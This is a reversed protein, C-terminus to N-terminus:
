MLSSNKLNERMLLDQVHNIIDSTTVQNICSTIHTFVPRDNNSYQRRIAEFKSRFYKEATEYDNTRNGFSVVFRSVQVGDELKKRLLDSKNLFLVLPVNELLKNTCLEKWIILSDELCNVKRDEPLAQDFPSLPALFIICDVNDFYPIWAHRQTRAGGVDYLRWEVGSKDVPFIHESVGITKIRARLIDDDTPMYRPATIRDLDNLFFGSGEELRVRFKALRSRVWPDKWLGILEQGCMHFFRGPDNKDDWDPTIALSGANHDSDMSARGGEVSRRGNNGNGPSSRGNSSSGSTVKVQVARRIKNIFAGNKSGGNKSNWTNDPRVFFEKDTGELVGALGSSGQVRTKSHVASLQINREEPGVLKNIITEELSTVPSLRLKMEAVYSSVSKATKPRGNPLGLAAAGPLTPSLPAERPPQLQQQPPLRNKSPSYYPSTPDEDEDDDRDPDRELSLELVLLLVRVCRGKARRNAIEQKEKTIIADIGDSIQKSNLERRERAEKQPQTENPPPVMAERFPDLESIAM